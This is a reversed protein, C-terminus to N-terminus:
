QNLSDKNLVYIQLDRSITDLNQDVVKLKLNLWGTDTPTYNWYLGSSKDQGNLSWRVSRIFDWPNQYSPFPVRNSQSDRFWFEVNLVLSDLQRITDGDILMRSQRLSDTRTSKISLEVDITKTQEESYDSSQCATLVTAGVVLFLFWKNM